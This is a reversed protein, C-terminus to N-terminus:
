PKEEPTQVEGMIARTHEAHVREMPMRRSAPVPPVLAIPMQQLRNPSGLRRCRRLFQEFMTEFVLLM